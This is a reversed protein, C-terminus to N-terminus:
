NEEEEWEHGEDVWQMLKDVYYSLQYILEGFLRRRLREVM